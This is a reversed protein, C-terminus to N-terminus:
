GNRYEREQWLLAAILWIYALVCIWFDPTM